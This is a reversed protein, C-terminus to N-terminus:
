SISNGANNNLVGKFLPDWKQSVINSWQYDPSTFKKISRLSLEEYLVKHTYLTNMRNAMDEPRILTGRTMLGTLIEDMTSPVLLGCDAYLEINASNNPVIQPAGTVAHEVNVLGFGEGLSNHGSVHTVYSHEGTVELDYVKGTYLEQEIKRIPYFAFKDDAWIKDRPKDKIKRLELGFLKSLNDASSGSTSVVFKGRGRHNIYPAINGLSILMRFVSLVLNESVTSFSLTRLKNSLHGDGLFYGKLLQIREVKPIYMISEHIFKNHAGKGFINILEKSLETSYYVINQRNRDYNFIHGELNYVEKMYEIIKSRLYDDSIGSNLSFAIEDKKLTGKALYVGYLFAKHEGISELEKNVVPITLISGESLDEAKIFEVNPNERVDDKFKRLLRTYQRIDSFLKHNKTLRFPFLGFPTIKLIEEDIKDYEFKNLVTEENGLHNIVTDGINVELISKYSGSLMVKTEPTYCSNVGIECANYIRNLKEESVTQAGEKLSSVHLRKDIGLRIAFEAIDIDADRLGAHAYLKVNDPKGESFLKFAEMTIWWKKRPQNRNGNLVVFSDEYFDPKDPFLSRKIDSKSIGEIKHFIKSDVGHSIIDFERDPCALKAVEAGFTNYCVLKDVIDVNEYWHPSHDRADVPFYAVIKPRGKSFMEKLVKFYTDLVWIDNLFFIIDPKEKNVLDPMRNIGYVDHIQVTAPTLAPYVKYPLDHPDGYYNVGLASVDYDEKPLNLLINTLVRSFGTPIVQDGVALIKIKRNM